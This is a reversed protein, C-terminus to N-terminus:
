VSLSFQTFEQLLKLMIVVGCVNNQTDTDDDNDDSDDDNDNYSAYESNNIYQAAM